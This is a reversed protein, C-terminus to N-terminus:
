PLELIELIDMLDIRDLMDFDGIRMARAHMWAVTPAPAEITAGAFVASGHAQGPILQAVLQFTAGAAIADRRPEPKHVTVVSLDLGPRLPGLRVITDDFDEEGERLELSGDSRL